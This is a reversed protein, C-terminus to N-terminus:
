SSVCAKLQEEVQKRSLAVSGIAEAIEKDYNHRHTPQRARDVEEELALLWVPIDFGVGTSEGALAETERELMEFVPHPAPRRVEDIAPRVLARIRDVIMPRVFREGLRDAITPMRMAYKKQLQHLKDIYQQAEHGIRDTLAQRWLRAARLRGRRVLIDHAMVVPKLHWCVRDYETRLRLFDLLVYLMEGRDSQTTTSNYDRYEGFNEVIAELVLTLKEEADDLSIRTGIDQVLKPVEMATSEDCLRELWNGVGQHLIARVNGLGFFRQTFLDGGYQQIFEVLENWSEADDVRELVSLRLTRSHILWSSLLVETLEELSSALANEVSRDKRGRGWSDSSTVLSEVLSRYGVKFLEDFETVAGPGVPNGREMHRATELLACTEVWLGRRPLWALLDQLQCQRRRAAVIQSPSGGKSLPVYLLAKSSLLERMEPWHERAKADDGVLLAGILRVAVPAEEGFRAALEDIEVDGQDSNAALVAVMTQGAISIDVCTVVIRELLAEKIMRKRDYQILAEPDTGSMPIRYRRVSDLLKILRDHCHVLAHHTWQLMTAVCRSPEPSAADHGTSRFCHSVAALKWLRSLSSLFELREVIRRSEWSLEDETTEGVDFIESDVGDDTSDRYVMDEYAAGFLDDEEDDIEEEDPAAAFGNHENVTTADLEFDPVTWYEGANAELYDFFKRVLDSTSEPLDLDADPRKMLRFLKLLWQQAMQHFSSSGQALPIRDAQGLWHILLARSAVFDNRELLAEVVLAYAQPSDFMDAHPAWFKVDGAAAGGQHWLQLGDAVREAAQFVALPDVADVSSVEHAAFQRWWEALSRFESRVQACVQERDEAASASWIRSMLEFIQEMLEVLEDARHDPVSNELAPFLSFQADFGLISWPDVVAGCDIARHLLQQIEQQLQIARAFDGDAVAQNGAALRCDMECVLRASAVPVVSAQKAAAKAHGMRAFIKALQVHELQSARQRALFANLHQRAGGFPQRRATAEQLLRQQHKSATHEILREYFMDRLGAIIPMLSALTVSSDHTEPGYGSISSAMLITGALVAAAEFELQDRPIEPHEDIRSMLGDLAVQQVVFRRYYGRNDICHPDWQGFHYNPRKNVPHDFDYARPDFALEQLRELSFHAARLVDPDTQALIELATTVVAHYPGHAVGAQEIYMPIPRIWEHPYPEHRVGELTPINRHGIFDNLKQITGRVIRDTDSWPASQQLITECVRGLFFPTFVHPTDQHFLLDTHFDLYAPLVDHELLRLISRAQDLDSFAQSRAPLLELQRTLVSCILQWGPRSDHSDGGLAVGLDDLASLFRPDHAGSSFNLYGLIREVLAQESAALEPLDFEPSGM